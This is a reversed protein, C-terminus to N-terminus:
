SWGAQLALPRQRLHLGLHLRVGLFALRLLGKGLAGTGPLGISPASSEINGKTIRVHPTVTSHLLGQKCKRGALLFIAPPDLCFSLVQITAAPRRGRRKLGGDAAGVAVDHLTGQDDAGAAHHPM